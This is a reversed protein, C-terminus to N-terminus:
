VGLKKYFRGSKQFITSMYWGMSEQMGLALYSEDKMNNYFMNYVKKQLDAKFYILVNRCLIIDFNEHVPNKLSVIDHTIFHPKDRLFDAARMYSKKADCEFYEDFPKHKFSKGYPNDKIVAFFSEKYLDYFRYSYEGYKAVEIMDENIDTAYVRTKEFLGLEYLLILMSYVEQGSSVGVHLVSLRENDQLSPLVQFRLEQWFQTDRFLETTNVTIQKIVSELFFTDQSIKDLLQNFSCTYDLLVKEIRRILSKESYGSLDFTSKKRVVDIFQQLENECIEM